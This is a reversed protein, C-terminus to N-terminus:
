ATFFADESAIGVQQREEEISRATGAPRPGGQPARTQAALWAEVDRERFYVDRRPGKRLHPIANARVLRYLKSRSWGWRTALAMLPLLRDSM